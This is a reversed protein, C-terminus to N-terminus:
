NSGGAVEGPKQVTINFVVRRAARSFACELVCRITGSQIDEVTTVGSVDVVYADDSSAGYLANNNYLGLLYGDIAAEVEAFLQGKGDIQRFLFQELLDATGTTVQMALRGFNLQSWRDDSSVSLWDYLFVGGNKVLFPNVGANSLTDLDDDSFSATVDSGGYVRGADGFEQTGAPARGAHGVRGDMRAALGAAAVSGPIDRTTNGDGPVTIYPACLGAREAGPSNSVATAYAALESATSDPEGDLLAVRGTENVHAVLAAHAATSAVGPILVQGVGYSATTLKDLAATWTAQSAAAANAPEVNARVVTVSPAGQTLLDAVHQAAAAPVNGTAAGASTFTVPYDVGTSSPYVIFANGTPTSIGRRSPAAAVTVVVQPRAM